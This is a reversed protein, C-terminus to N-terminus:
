IIKYNYVSDKIARYQHPINAVVWASQGTKLVFTEFDSSIELEGVKVCIYKKPITTTRKIDPCYQHYSKEGKV